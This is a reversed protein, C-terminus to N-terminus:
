QINNKLYKKNWNKKNWNDNKSGEYNKQDRAKIKWM